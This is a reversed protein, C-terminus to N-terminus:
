IASYIITICQMNQKMRFGFDSEQVQEWKSENTKKMRKWENDSTAVRQWENDSTTVQQVVQQWKNNNATGSTTMCLWEKDNTKVQQWENENSTGSTQKNYVITTTLSNILDFHFCM